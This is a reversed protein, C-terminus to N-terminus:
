SIKGLPAFGSLEGRRGKEKRRKGERRWPRILACAL